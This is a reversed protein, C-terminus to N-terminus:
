PIGTAGIHFCDKIFLDFPSLGKPRKRRRNQLFGNAVPKFFLVGNRKHRLDKLNLLILPRPYRCYGM